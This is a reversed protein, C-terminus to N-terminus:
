WPGAPSSRRRVMPVLLLPVLAASGGCGTCGGDDSPPGELREYGLRVSFPSPTRPDDGDWDAPVVSAAVYIRDGSDVLVADRSVQVGDPTVAILVVSVEGESTVSVEARPGRRVFWRFWQGTPEVHTYVRGHDWAPDWPSMTPAEEPLWDAADALGESRHQDGVLVRTVALGDLAAALDGGGALEAFADVADPEPDFGEQAAAEWLAPGAAPGLGVVEDLHKVWLAAGYEFFWNDLEESGEGTLTSVWATRQFDGVDSDWFGDTGLTWAQAAAATAEWIPLAEETFDTAIQLAHNFEHVTYPGVWEEPVARDFAIWASASMRGDGVASDEWAEQITFGEWEGLEALYIDLEPGDEEDPLVPPAFGLADVQVDWATEAFGLVREALAEDGAVTWHV